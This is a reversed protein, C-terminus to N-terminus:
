CRSDARSDAADGEADQSRGGALRGSACLAAAAALEEVPMAHIHQANLWLAKPDIPDEETFNVVANSRNM